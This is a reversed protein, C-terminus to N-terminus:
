KVNYWQIISIYFVGDENSAREYCARHKFIFRLNNREDVDLKKNPM